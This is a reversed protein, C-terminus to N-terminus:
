KQRKRKFPKKKKSSSTDIELTTKKGKLSVTAKFDSLREVRIGKPDLSLVEGVPKLDVKGNADVFVGIDRGKELITGVLTLELKPQSKPVGKPQTPLPKLVLPKPKPKPPDYLPGRLRRQWHVGAVLSSDPEPQSPKTLPKSERVRNRGANPSSVDSLAWWIVGATAFLLLLSIARLLMRIRRINM